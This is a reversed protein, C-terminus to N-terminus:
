PQVRTVAPPFLAATQGSNMTQARMTPNSPQAWVTSAVNVTSPAVTPTQAPGSTFAPVPGGITIPQRSKRVVGSPTAMAQYSAVQNKRRRSCMIPVIIAVLIASLIMLSIFVILVIGGPSEAFDEIDRANTERTASTFVSRAKTNWLSTRNGLIGM